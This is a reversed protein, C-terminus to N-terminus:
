FINIEYNLKQLKAGGGGEKRRMTRRLMQHWAKADRSKRDVKKPMFISDKQGLIIQFRAVPLLAQEVLNQSLAKVGTVSIFKTNM